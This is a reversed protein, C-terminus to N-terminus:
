VKEEVVKRKPLSIATPPAVLIFHNIKYKKNNEASVDYDIGVVYGNSSLRKCIAEPLHFSYADAFQGMSEDAFGIPEETVVDLYVPITTINECRGYLNGLIHRRKFSLLNKEM